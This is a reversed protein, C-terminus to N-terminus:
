RYQGEYMIMDWEEDEQEHLRTPRAPSGLGANNVISYDEQYSATVVLKM